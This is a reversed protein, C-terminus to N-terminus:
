ETLQTLGGIETATKDVLIAKSNKHLIKFRSAEPIVDGELIDKISNITAADILGNIINVNNNWLGSPISVGNEDMLTGIGSVQITGQLVSDSHLILAGFELGVGAYSSPDNLNHINLLGSYGNFAINQGSGGMDIHPPSLPNVQNCDVFIADLGGDIYIVGELGCSHIHGNFYVLDHIVSDTIETGGDLIGTLHINRITVNVLSASDYMIINTNVHNQGELIFDDLIVNDTITLDSHIYFKNFGKEEAILIADEVNNSKMRETGIPYETGVVGEVVDITVGGNYSAFQIASLEQLTASSSNSQVIQTFATPSIPTSVPDGNVDNAVLNGGSVQCLIYEAGARPEFAILANNLTLTLGVLVGGGLPEKGAGDIIYPEDIQIVEAFRATDYLDQMTLETSPAQVTIIRPSVNWDIIIDNRIAM